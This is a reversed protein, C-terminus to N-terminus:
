QPRVCPSPTEQILTNMRNCDLDAPANAGSLCGIFAALDDDDIDQDDDMRGALCAPDNQVVLDGLHCRQFMGFDDLDVDGDRDFDGPPKEPGVYDLMAVYGGRPWMWVDLADDPSVLAVRRDFAGSRETSDALITAQYQGPALFSLDVLMQRNLIPEGHVIAIFWQNHKRRAFAALEGIKSEPLVRTEDWTTPAAEIVDRAKSALLRIPDDAYHTLPSTLVFAMALHHAYSMPGRRNDKFTVPTYDAHGAILRTFPLAANHTSDLFAKWIHYELGRVGERTMEHPWTRDGGTPKNAGHFNVMIEHDATAALVADYFAIRDVSESNMFDIKLGVIVKAGLATNQADIWSLHTTRQQADALANWPYWLWVGINRDRAYELLAFLSYGQNDWYAWGEDFVVYDFGLAVASDIYFEQDIAQADYNADRRAWWSWLARGPKIWAAGALAPSPAPNVNAVLTSNVLGDLNATCIMIRWPTADGGESAWVQQNEFSSRLVRSGADSRLAMGPYNHLNGETIVAYGDAVDNGPLVCTVPTGTVDAFSDPSNPLMTGEYYIREPHGVEPSPDHTWITTGTPLTWQTGEANVTRAGAGPIVYRFAVGDPYLRWHMEFPTDGGGSRNVTLTYRRHFDRASTKVGRYPYTHDVIGLEQLSLSLAGTGLDVGDVTLSLRSDEIVTRGNRQVAYLLTENDDISVTATVGADPSYMTVAAPASSSAIAVSFLTAALRIMDRPLRPSCRFAKRNM